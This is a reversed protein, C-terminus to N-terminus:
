AAAREAEGTYVGTWALRAPTDARVHVMFAGISAGAIRAAPGLPEAQWGMALLEKRFPEPIIGTLREIGRALAFDIVASFLANRLERRRAAGHRQPLCLRTTEWTTEDAPVGLPCLQSFLTGLMHPRDSPFLRISAEHAGHADAVIVYVTHDNDFQDIEYQEDVVPVDWGFLDVFLRKRDAFMSQLLPRHAAALHNDIIHIM